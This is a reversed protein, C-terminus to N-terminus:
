QFLKSRLVMIFVDSGNRCLSHLLVNLSPPKHAKPHKSKINPAPPLQPPTKNLLLLVRYLGSGGVLAKLKCAVALFTLTHLLKTDLVFCCYWISALSLFFDTPSAFVKPAFCKQLIVGM